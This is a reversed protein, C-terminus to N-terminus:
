DFQRGLRERVLAAREKRTGAVSSPRSWRRRARARFSATDPDAPAFGRQRSLVAHLYDREHWVNIERYYCLETATEAAFVLLADVSINEDVPQVEEPHNARLWDLHRPTPASLVIRTGEGLVEALAGHLQEREGQAIHEYVDMLVVLDFQGVLRGPLLQGDAFVLRPSAFLATATRLLEHSVDLGVVDAQPWRRSLRWSIGGIGCGVELIRTPQRPAFREVTQWAREIRPNGAVFDELQRELRSDYFSARAALSKAVGSM